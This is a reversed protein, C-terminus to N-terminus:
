PAFTFLKTEYNPIDVGRFFLLGNLYDEYLFRRVKQTGEAGVLKLIPAAANSNEFLYLPGAQDGFTYVNEYTTGVFLKGNSVKLHEGFGGWQAPSPSIVRNPPSSLSTLNFQYISGAGEIGAAFEYPAGVVLTNGDIALARGFDGWKAPSTPLITKLSSTQLNYVYARGSEQFQASNYGPDGYVFLDGSFDASDEWVTFPAPLIHVQPPASLNNVDYLYIKQADGDVALLKGNAAKLFYYAWNQTSGAARLVQIPNPLNNLDYVYIVSENAGGSFLPVDAGHLFLKNGSVTMKSGFLPYLLGTVPNSLSNQLVWPSSASTRTYIDVQGAYTPNGSMYPVGRIKLNGELIVREYDNLSEMSIPLIQALGGGSGSAQCVGLIMEYGSACSVTPISLSINSSLDCNMSNGVLSCSGPAGWTAIQYGTAVTANVVVQTGKIFNKSCTGSTCNIGTPSSTLSVKSSATVSLTRTEQYVYALNFIKPSGLSFSVTLMEPTAGSPSFLLKVLCTTGPALAACNNYAVSMQTSSLGLSSVTTSSTGTNKLSLTILQSTGQLYTGLSLTAGDIYTQSSYVLVVNSLAAVQQPSQIQAILNASKLTGYSLTGSVSGGAPVSSGSLSVKVTCSSGAIINRNSCTDYTKVFPPSLSIIQNLSITSTNKISITKIVSSTQSLSGFDVSSIMEVSTGSIAPNEGVTVSVPFSVLPDLRLVDEKLGASLASGNVSLKVTCTAGVLLNTCSPSQYALAIASGVDLTAPGPLITDGTNKIDLTLIKSENYAITGFSAIPTISAAKAAFTQPIEPDSKQNSVKSCSTLGILFSIIVLGKFQNM